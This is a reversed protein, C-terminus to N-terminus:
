KSRGFLSLWGDKSAAPPTSPEVPRPVKALPTTIRSPSAAVLQERRGGPEDDPPLVARPPGTVDWDALLADLEDPELLPPTHRPVHEGRDVELRALATLMERYLEIPVVAVLEERGATILVPRGSARIREMDAAIEEGVSIRPSMLLTSESPRHPMSESQRDSGGRGSASGVKNGVPNVAMLEPSAADGFLGGSQSMSM